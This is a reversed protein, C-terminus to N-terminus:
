YGSDGMSIAYRVTAMTVIAALVKEPKAAM